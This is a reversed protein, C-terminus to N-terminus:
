EDMVDGLVSTMTILKVNKTRHISITCSHISITCFLQSESSHLNDMKTMFYSALLSPVILNINDSM